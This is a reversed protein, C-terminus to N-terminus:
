GLPGHGGGQGFGGALGVSGVAGVTVMMDLEEFFEWAEQAQVGAGIEGVNKYQTKCGKPRFLGHYKREKMNHTWIALSNAANSRGFYDHGTNKISIRIGHERVFDLTKSIHEPSRAEVYYTSLRGLSCEGSVPSSPAFSNLICSSQGCTEWDLFEMSGYQKSRATGDMYDDALALCEKSSAGKYCPAAWPVTLKLSGGITRNFASWETSSPWCPQGPICTFNSTYKADDTIPRQPVDLGSTSGIPHHTARFTSNCKSYTAFLGLLITGCIASPIILSSIRSLAGGNNKREDTGFGWPKLVKKSHVQSKTGGDTWNSNATENLLPEIEDPCM